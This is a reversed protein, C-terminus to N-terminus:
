EAGQLDYRQEVGYPGGGSGPRSSFLVFEGVQFPRSCYLSHSILMRQLAIPDPNRLRALTVHPTFKRTEPNLGLVQCLREQIGHLRRLEANDVLGAYLTHPKAGGFYGIDKLQLEFGPFHLDALGYAIENALRGDIDGIFRLTIHFSPADVWRAGAVGGQLLALEQGVDEPIHLGTFWRPM